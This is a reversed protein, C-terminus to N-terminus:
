VTPSGSGARHRVASPHGLNRLLRPWRVLPPMHTHGIDVNIARKIVQGAHEVPGAPEDDVPFQALGHGFLVNFDDQLFGQLLIGAFFRANDAVIARLEDGMVEFLEDAQCADSM